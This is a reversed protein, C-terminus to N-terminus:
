GPQRLPTVGEGGDELTCLATGAGITTSKSDLADTKSFPKCHPTQPRIPATVTHFLMQALSWIDVPERSQTIIDISIQDDHLLFIVKTKLSNQPNNTKWLANPGCVVFLAGFAIGFHLRAILNESYNKGPNELSSLFAQKKM